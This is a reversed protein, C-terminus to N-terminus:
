KKKLIYLLYEKYDAIKFIARTPFKWILFKKVDEIKEPTLNERRLYMVFEHSLSASRKMEQGLEDHITFKKKFQFTGPVLKSVLEFVQRLQPIKWSEQSTNKWPTIWLGLEKDDGNHATLKIRMMSNSMTMKRTIMKTYESTDDTSKEITSIWTCLEKMVYNVNAFTDQLPYNELTCTINRKYERVIGGDTYGVDGQYRLSELADRDIIIGYNPLHGPDIWQDLENTIFVRKSKASTKEEDYVENKINQLNISDAEACSRTWERSLDICKQMKDHITAERSKIEQECKAVCRAYADQVNSMKSGGSTKNTSSTSGRAYPHAM